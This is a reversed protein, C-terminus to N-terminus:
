CRVVARKRREAQMQQYVSTGPLSSSLFDLHGDEEKGGSVALTHCARQEQSGVVGLLASHLIVSLQLLWSTPSGEGSRQGGGASVFSFKFSFSFM